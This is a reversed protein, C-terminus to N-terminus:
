TKQVKTRNFKRFFHLVIKINNINLVIKIHSKISEGFEELVSFLGKKSFFSLEAPLQHLFNM